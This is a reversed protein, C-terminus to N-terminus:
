DAKEMDGARAGYTDYLYRVIAVSEFIPAEEGGLVNPDLLM